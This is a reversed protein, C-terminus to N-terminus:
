ASIKGQHECNVILEEVNQTHHKLIRLEDNILEREIRTAATQDNIAQKFM